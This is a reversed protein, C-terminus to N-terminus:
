VLRYDLTKREIDAGVVKFRVSDGLAYKKKTREGVVAYSRERLVYYDDKLDRLKVM